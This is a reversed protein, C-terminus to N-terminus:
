VRHSAKGVRNTIGDEIGQRPQDNYGNSHQLTHHKM